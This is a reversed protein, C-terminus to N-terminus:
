GEGAYFVLREIDAYSLVFSNLKQEVFIFGDHYFVLKGLLNLDPFLQNLPEKTPMFGQLDQFYNQREGLQECQLNKETLISLPLQEYHKNTTYWFELNPVHSSVNIYTDRDLSFFTDAFLVAGLDTSDHPSQLNSVQLRITM